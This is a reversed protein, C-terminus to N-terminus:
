CKAGRIELSNSGNTLWEAASAIMTDDLWKQKGKTACEWIVLVRWGSEMLSTLVETDRLRNREIKAKWFETRSSPWRFLHCDHGHWFCGHVLIVAKYKAFVIDPKGPLSPDHLRFRFGRRHLGKRMVLEPKTNKGRIGSMMLSRKEPSVVDAL